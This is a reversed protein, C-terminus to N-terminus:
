MQAFRVEGSVLSYVASTIQLDGREMRADLLPSLRRLDAATGIANSRVGAAVREDRSRHVGTSAPMAEAGAPSGTAVLKTAIREVIGQLNPPLPEADGSIWDVAATVAGCRSHGLVVVLRAGLSEVAFEVSGAVERTAINGAVRIVFLDGPGQDFVVEVPVRSDACGVVVAFPTQSDALAARRSSDSLTLIDARVRGERFRRNGDQLRALAEAPPM